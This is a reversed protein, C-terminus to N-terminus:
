QTARPVHIEIQPPPIAKMPSPPLDWSEVGKGERRWEM